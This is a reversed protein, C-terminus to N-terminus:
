DGCSGVVAEVNNPDIWTIPVGRREMGRFWTQQRKAFRGIALELDRAMRDHSKAGELYAGVERYELGLAELREPALGGAMLSRVEDVLGEDLREALRRRIKERLAARDLDLGFVEYAVELGPGRSVTVPGRQGAEDVELVRIMRRRSSLDVDKNVSGVKKVMEQLEAHSLSDLRERLEPNPHVDAIEYQRVVAEVYLGTGGVMVLPITGDSFGPRGAFERFLRYCDQQFRFLTYVEEPEAIDILHYPVAPEVRSYELLDKGTGIDLRRYVQRSDASLIESGLRHAVEVGLRTKGSATPGVIVVVKLM